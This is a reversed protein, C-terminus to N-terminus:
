LMRVVCISYLMGLLMTFKVLQQCTKYDSPIKASWLLGLSGLLPVVIGFLIYRTSLSSWGTPFPLVRYWLHGIIALTLLILATVFIKTGLEGWVVPMSHCELERDGMQDQMDKVIERIWTLLFAFLAFGGLWVYLDHVLTTYPLITAYLLQLQAVNALAVMMPTMAALLAITLNGVMFLRKYSSSYFWLLGPTILFITALPWSRVVWSAALGFVIGAGALIRYLWMAQEKSVTRTVILRDPRNIRDIKVDFYDNIIYGAAGTCVVASLILCLVWWPMVEGFGAVSLVPTCVWKEMLWVLLGLFLLNQWRILRLYNM